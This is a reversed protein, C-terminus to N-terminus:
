AKVLLAAAPKLDGIAIIDGVTTTVAVGDMITVMDEMIAGAMVM